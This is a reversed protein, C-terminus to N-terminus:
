QPRRDGRIEVVLVGGPGVICELEKAATLKVGSSSPWAYLAKASDVAFKARLVDRQSCGEDLISGVSAVDGRRAGWPNYLAVIWAGDAERRNIQMPMHSDREFPALKRVAAMLKEPWEAPKCEIAGVSAKSSARSLITRYQQWVERPADEPVVDFLEPIACPAYCPVEAKGAGGRPENSRDAPGYTFLAERLKNWPQPDGPPVSADLVLAIPTFPEGVDPHKESFDLLEQTARGYSSLTSAEWDTLNCEAGWEEHLTHAGSLYAHFFIRRQLATSPGREPGAPWGSDEFWKRPGQWSWDKEPVMATCGDPGWPAYFVGWPKGAARAAGRLCAITFQTQSSAWPGVEAIGSHAGYKYFIHWVHEGWGSGEAYSFRNGFRRAQRRASWEIEKWWAAEDVPRVRGAYDDLANAEVTRDAADGTFYARVDDPQVPETAFRADATKLRNWDTHINSIVEHVQGGLLKPGLLEAYAAILKQDFDYVYYPSGGVVRDVIFPCRRKALIEHLEGGIRAVANFRRSDEGFPSNVLRVGCSPRILGAKELGRWYRGTAEYTHLFSFSRRPGSGSGRAVEPSTMPGSKALLPSGGTAAALAVGGARHILERRTIGAM